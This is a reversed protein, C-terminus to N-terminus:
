TCGTVTATQTGFKVTMGPELGDGTLQVTEGGVAPGVSPTISKISPGVYDFSAANSNGWKTEVTVNVNGASHSPITMTCTASNSCAIGTALSGGFDFKFTESLGAGTLTVAINGDLPGSGPSIGAISL